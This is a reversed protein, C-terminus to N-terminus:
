TVERSLNRLETRVLALVEDTTRIADSDIEEWRDREPSTSYWERGRCNGTPAVISLTLKRLSLEGPSADDLLTLWLRWGAPLDAQLEGLFGNLQGQSLRSHTM